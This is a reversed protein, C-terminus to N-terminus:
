FWNLFGLKERKHTQKFHLLYDKTFIQNIKTFAKVPLILIFASRHFIPNNQVWEEREFKKNVDCLYYKLFFTVFLLFFLFILLDFFLHVHFFVYSLYWLLFLVFCISLYNHFNKKKWNLVSMCVSIFSKQFSVFLLLIQLFTDAM